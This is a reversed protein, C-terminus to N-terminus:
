GQKERYVHVLTPTIDINGKVKGYMNIVFESGLPFASYLAGSMTVEDGSNPVVYSKLSPLPISCNAFYAEINRLPLGAKLLIEKPIQALHSDCYDNGVEVKLGGISAILVERETKQLADYVKSDIKGIENIKTGLIEVTGTLNDRRNEINWVPFNLDINIMNELNGHAYAIFCSRGNEGLFKATPGVATAYEGDQPFVATITRNRGAEIMRKRYKERTLVIKEGYKLGTKRYLWEPIFLANRPGGNPCEELVSVFLQHVAIIPYSLGNVDLNGKQVTIKEIKM